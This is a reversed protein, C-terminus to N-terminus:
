EEAEAAAKAQAIKAEVALKDRMKGDLKRLVPELSENHFDRQVCSKAQLEGLKSSVAIMDSCKASSEEAKLAALSETFSSSLKDLEAMIGEKEAELGDIEAEIGAGM